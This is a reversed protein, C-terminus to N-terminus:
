LAYVWLYERNYILIEPIGDQNIDVVETEYSMGIDNLRHFPLAPKNSCINTTHPFRKVLYGQFDVLYPWGGEKYVIYDSNTNEGMNVLDVPDNVHIPRDPRSSAPKGIPWCEPLVGRWTEEGNLSFSNMLERQNVVFIRKEGQYRGIISYQPHPLNKVWLTKGKSNVYYQKDSGSITAFWEGDVWHAVVHDVHQELHDIEENQWLDLTWLVEGKLTILQYGILIEIAGDKNIDDIVVAHGAGLYDSLNIIEFENNLLIWPNGYPHPPYSRDTVGLLIVFGSSESSSLDIYHVISFNDAPLQIKRLVRGDLPNLILLNDSDDLVIIEKFGDNNIDGMTLLNNPSHSLYAFEGGYPQGTQWLIEGQQNTATLCFIDRGVINLYNKIGAFQDYVNSKFMGVSQLWLFELEGDNNIDQVFLRCGGSENLAVESLLRAEPINRWMQFARCNQYKNGLKSKLNNLLGM